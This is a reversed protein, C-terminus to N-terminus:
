LLWKQAVSVRSKSEKRPKGYVSETSQIFELLLDAEDHSLLSYLETKDMLLYNRLLKRCLARMDFVFFTDMKFYKEFSPEDAFVQKKSKM